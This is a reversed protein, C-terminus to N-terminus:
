TIFEEIVSKGQLTLCVSFYERPQCGVLELKIFREEDGTTAESLVTGVQDLIAIRLQRPLQNAERHPYIQVRVELSQADEAMAIVELALIVSQQPVEGMAIIKGRSMRQDASPLPMTRQKQTSAASRTAAVLSATPQWPAADFTSDLWQRLRNVPHLVNLLAELPLLDDLYVLPPELAPADEPLPELFGILDVFELSDHFQVAVYGIRDFSAELPITFSAMGPLVPRCELRGVGPVVLDAGDMVTALSAHGSDGWSPESEIGLWGLYTHVAWVALTNLYVRKGQELTPQQSSLRDAQEFGTQDLPITIKQLDQGIM